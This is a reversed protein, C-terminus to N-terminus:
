VLREDAADSTYLLCYRRKDADIAHSTIYDLNSKYFEILDEPLTFVAMRNILKHAYFGWDDLARPLPKVPILMMCCFIVASIKLM